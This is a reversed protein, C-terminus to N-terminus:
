EWGTFRGNRRQEIYHRARLEQAEILSEYATKFFRGTASLARRGVNKREAM